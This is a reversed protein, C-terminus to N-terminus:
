HADIIAEATFAVQTLREAGATTELTSALRSMTASGSTASCNSIRDRALLASNPMAEKRGM